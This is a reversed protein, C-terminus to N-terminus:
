GQVYDVASIASAAARIKALVAQHAPHEQYRQLAEANDFATTLALDFSRASQTVDLGVELALIEPIKPPLGRLDAAIEAAAAGGPGGELKM